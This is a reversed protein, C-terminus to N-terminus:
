GRALRRLRSVAAPRRRDGRPLLAVLRRCADLDDAGSDADLWRALLHPAGSDLVCDRMRADLRERAERIAPVDSEPLIPGDYLALARAVDGADVLREVEAFDLRLAGTLRYPNAQVRDGLARRLRSLESRVSGPRGFDGYLEIALREASLGKPSLALLVLMESHRPTLQLPRAEGAVTLTARSRGLTVLEGAQKPDAASTLAALAPASRPHGPVFVEPSGADAEALTREAARRGLDAELMRAAATVLALSHPHATSVEGSLDIVGITEGTEPDRVPAASCTWGHVPASYHEASFVQVSHRTALATGMANTGAQTEAWAAGPALNVEQAADLVDTEGDIWLLTGDADCVLVVQRDDDCVDALLERLLPASPFLPHRRWRERATEVDCTRPAIGREPDIGARSSRRWSRDIVERVLPSRPGGGIRDCHARALDKALRRRDTTSDLAIWPNQQM